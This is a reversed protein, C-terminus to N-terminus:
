RPRVRKRSRRWKGITIHKAKRVHLRRQFGHGRPHGWRTVTTGGIATAAIRPMFKRPEGLLTPAKLTHKLANAAQHTGLVTRKSGKLSRVAIAAREKPAARHHTVM